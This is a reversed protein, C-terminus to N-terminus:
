GPLDTTFDKTGTVAALADVRNQPTGIVTFEAASKLEVEVARTTSSAARVALEGYTVSSGDPASIVGGKAVPSAVTDGLVIAAAELLAAKAVAAAVRIPTYTAITTNSGGTLQNFLLEPRAPALTVVVKDLPLDLEEAILMASSTTIGQGVEARPLAFSATGDENIQVTILNATPRAADTLADNLDYLEAPQPTTPIVAAARESLLGLDAAAVLTAGGIVYGLFRRRPVAHDLPVLRPSHDPM